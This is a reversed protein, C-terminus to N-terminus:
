SYSLAARNDWINDFDSNGDAWVLVLDDGTETLRKISWSASSTATGPLAEGIYTVGGGVDDLQILPSSLLSM